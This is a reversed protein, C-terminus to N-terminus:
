NLPTQGTYQLPLAINSSAIGIKIASRWGCRRASAHGLLPVHKHSPILCLVHARCPLTSTTVCGSLLILGAIFCYARSRQRVLLGPVRNRGM